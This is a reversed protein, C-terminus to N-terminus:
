EEWKVKEQERQRKLVLQENIYRDREARAVQTDIVFEDRSDETNSRIKQNNKVKEDKYVNSLEM